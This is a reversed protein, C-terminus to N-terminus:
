FPLRKTKLPENLLEELEDENLIQGLEDPEPPLPFEEIFLTTAPHKAIYGDLRAMMKDGWQQMDNTSMTKFAQRTSQNRPSPTNTFSKM